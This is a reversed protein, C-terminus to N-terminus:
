PQLQICTVKIPPTYWYESLGLARLYALYESMVIHRDANISMNILTSETYSVSIKKHRFNIMGEYIEKGNKDKLGTYQMLEYNGIEVSNDFEIKVIM